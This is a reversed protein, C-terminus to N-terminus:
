SKLRCRLDVLHLPLSLAVWLAVVSWPASTLAARLAIMLCLGPALGVILPWAARRRLIGLLVLEVLLVALAIDIARGSEVLSQLGSM